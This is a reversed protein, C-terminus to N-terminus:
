AYFRSYDFGTTPPELYQHIVAEHRLWRLYQLQELLPLDNLSSFQVVCPLNELQMFPIVPELETLLLEHEQMRMIEKQYKLELASRQRETKAKEFQEIVAEISPIKSPPKLEIVGEFYRSFDFKYDNNLLEQIYGEPLEMCYKVVLSGVSGLRTEEPFFSLVGKSTSQM